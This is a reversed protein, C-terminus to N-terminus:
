DQLRATLDKQQQALKAELKKLKRHEKLFKNLLM